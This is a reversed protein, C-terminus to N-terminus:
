RTPTRARPSRPRLSRIVFAPTIDLSIELHRLLAALRLESLRGASTSAPGGPAAASGQSVGRQGRVGGGTGVEFPTYEGGWEGSGGDATALVQGAIGTYVTSGTIGESVLM